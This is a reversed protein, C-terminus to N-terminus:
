LRAKPEDGLFKDVVNKWVQVDFYEFWYHGFQFHPIQGPRNGIEVLRAHPLLRLIEQGSSFPVIRDLKGHILLVQTDRPLETHLSGFNM